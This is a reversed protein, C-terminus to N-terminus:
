SAFITKLCYEGIKLFHEMKIGESFMLFRSSKQHKWPTYFHFMPQFHTLRFKQNLDDCYFEPFTYKNNYETVKFCLHLKLILIKICM